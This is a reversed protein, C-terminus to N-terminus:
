YVPLAFVAGFNVGPVEAKLELEWTVQTEAEPASTSPVNEPINFKVPIISARQSERFVTSDSSAEWLVTSVRKSKSGHNSRRYESRSETCRLIAQVRGSVSEIPAAAYVRAEWNAGRRVPISTLQLWTRGYKRWRLTTNCARYILYTGVAPFFLGLLALYRGRELEAPVVFLIPFSIANWFIAVLWIGVMASKTQPHLILSHWEPRQLWPKDSATGSYLSAFRERRLAIVTGFMMGYGVASFIVAFILYVMLMGWRLKPYLVSQRPDRPNVHCTFAQGSQQYKRLERYSDQQFSGFNDASEHLSVRNGTYTVGTWSYRYTAKARYTTTRKSYHSELQADTIVAPVKAWARVQLAEIVTSVAFYSAISGVTIFPLSFIILLLFSGKGLRHM